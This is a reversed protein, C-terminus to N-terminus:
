KVMGCERFWDLADAIAGELPGYRYGLEREAKVSSFIFDPCYGYRVRTINIFAERGSVAQMAEGLWGLGAALPRPIAFRPPKVGAVDTILHMIERYSLNHGGLIYREGRRGRRWAGVMGRAVDRVDVFCNKGDTHGPVKGKVLDVILRGSSPKVDYPGFMYGPNVVVADLGTRTAEAVLEESQRKTTTYGDDLGFKDFNWPRDETVPQGDTSLACAVTSSCHVLRGVGATRVAEIVHRTGDINARIMSPPAKRLTSVQAACHFVVDAGAFVSALRESSDLGAEIWTIPVDSLHDIHSQQRRTAVVEVSDAILERALNGGLLGTAGTIVAKM